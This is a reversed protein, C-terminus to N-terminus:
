SFASPARGWGHAVTVKLADHHASAHQPRALTTSSWPRGPTSRGDHGFRRPEGGSLGAGRLHPALRVGVQKGIEQLPGLRGAGFRGICDVDVALRDRDGLTQALALLEVAAFTAVESQADENAPALRADGRGVERRGSQAGEDSTGDVHSAGDRLVRKAPNCRGLQQRGAPRIQVHELVLAGRRSGQQCHSSFGLIRRAGDAADRIGIAGVGGPAPRREDEGGAVAEGALQLRATVAQRARHEGAFPGPHLGVIFPRGGDIPVIEHGGCLDASIGALESDAAEIRALCPAGAHRDHVVPANGAAQHAVQRAGDIPAGDGVARRKELVPHARLDEGVADPNQVVRTALAAPSAPREVGFAKRGLAM